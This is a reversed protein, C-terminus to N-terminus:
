NGDSVVLRIEILQEKVYPVINLMVETIGRKFTPHVEKFHGGNIFSEESYCIPKNAPPLQCFIGGFVM